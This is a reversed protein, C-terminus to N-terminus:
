LLCGQRARDPSVTQHRPGAEPGHVGPRHAPYAAAAGPRRHGAFRSLSVSISTWSHKELYNGEFLRLIVQFCWIIMIVRHHASM